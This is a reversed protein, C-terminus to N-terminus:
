SGSFDFDRRESAPTLLPRVSEKFSWKQVFFLTLALLLCSLINAFLTALPFTYNVFCLSILYRIVSGLGGGLFVYIVVKM